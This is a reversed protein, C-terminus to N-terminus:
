SLLERESKVTKLLVEAPHYPAPSVKVIADLMTIVFKVAVVLLILLPTIDMLM